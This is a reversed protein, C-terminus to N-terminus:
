SLFTLKNLVQYCSDKLALRSQADDASSKYVNIADQIGIFQSSEELYILQVLNLTNSYAQKFIPKDNEGTVFDQKLLNVKEQLSQM